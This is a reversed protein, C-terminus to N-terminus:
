TLPEPTATSPPAGGPSPSTSVRAAERPASPTTPEDSTAPESTDDDAEDDRGFFDFREGIEAMWAQCCPLVLLTLFTSSLLGMIVTVALPQRIEAGDGTGLAMPALGLVTTATTMLIPRLRASGAEVVADRISRGRGRLRQAYDVLVIANNVVIGALMILGLFVIVSVHISFLRLGVISGVFALPISLMILLPLSLSEFQAAMIVYVLFVSLALALLLSARSREWEENQGSVAHEVEGPLEVGGLRRDIAGVATGLSGGALNATVLAVRRGDIRRIESPGEAVTIDAVASLPVPREGGPNVILDELDEVSSRDKEALRVLVPVKRDGADFRTAERGQIEDKVREAVSSLALNQLLLRQRDYTVQVEPVGAELSSEVDALEPLVALEDRVRESATKLDDLDHGQVEVEIPTRFSFLVPREVRSELDPVLALQRRLRESEREEATARDVGPALLVKLRAVHEGEDSRTSDPDRGVTLMLSEIEGPEDLLRREIPEIRSLTETLPTGVPLSAVVTFEGQHVEPLLEAELESAMQVTVFLVAGILLFVVVPAALAGRLVKPYARNLLGLFGGTLAVFPWTLKTLLWAVALGLGFVLGVVVFLVGFILYGVLEFLSAVVLRLVLLFGVLIKATPSSLKELDRRFAERARWRFSPRTWGASGGDLAFGRSALMPLFGLAVILAAILSIVVAAGLDGFVQGAVGEVFLMPLFVAISTLTSAIVASRVEATGRVAAEVLGDGEERCRQISELVVISSDVLMGIGLALGGLSMINLSVGMLHLPAFTVILSVPIAVAIITTSRLSRLFLFLIVVALLGGLIATNRVERISGAIFRSRDAVVSVAVEEDALLRQALSLSAVSVPEDEEEDDESEDDSGTADEGDADLEEPLEGLVNNLRKSLAVVNADAEAHIEVHVCASGDTRTLVEREAHARRVEGLDAIRVDRGERRTIVLEAVHDLSEFENLTRVLYDARGESLLGGAMNVNEERLRDAVDRASLGAARLRGADLLVHIEERLGGRVRVSAVGKVPELVRRVQQECVRRLRRMEIEPDVGERRSSVSLEIVPDLSPDFRLILPRSAGDPLRVLDLKELADQVADSMTTDWSFELVVDSMGAVSRSSLRQLGSVVGVSEEIPRSIENEVEEPAAGPYETRITLTPYSMDPMLQLPLQQSSLAGFVVAALVVMLVGVPRSTVLSTSPTKDIM